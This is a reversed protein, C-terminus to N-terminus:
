GEPRGELAEDPADDDWEAEERAENDHCSRCLGCGCPCPPNYGGTDDLHFEEGCDVCWGDPAETSDYDPEVTNM